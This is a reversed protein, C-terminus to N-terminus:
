LFLTLVIEVLLDKSKRTRNENNILDNFIDTDVAVNMNSPVFPDQRNSSISHQLLEASLRLGNNRFTAITIDIADRIQSDTM